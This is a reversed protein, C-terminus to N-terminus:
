RGRLANAIELSTAEVGQLGVPYFTVGRSAESIQTLALRATAAQDPENGNLLGVCYISVNNNKLSGVLEQQTVTSATDNGETILVVVKRGHHATKEMHNLSLRVADRMAKGGRSDIRTLAEEVKEANNTYALDIFVEDNFNVICVEGHPEVTKILALVTANVEPRKGIM